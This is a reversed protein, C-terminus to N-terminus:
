KMEYIQYLMQRRFVFSILASILFAAFLGFGIQRLQRLFPFFQHADDFHRCEIAIFLVGRTYRRCDILCQEQQPFIENTRENTQKNSHKISSKVVWLNM